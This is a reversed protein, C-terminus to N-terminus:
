AGLARHDVVGVAQAFVQVLMPQAPIRDTRSVPARPNVKRAPDADPIGFQRRGSGCWRAQRGAVRHDVDFHHCPAPISGVV